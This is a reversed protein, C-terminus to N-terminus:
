NYTINHNPMNSKTLTVTTAGGKSGVSYNTGAGDLQGAGMPIRGRLDPLQFTAVGDGGYTTGLLSFLPTFQSISLMSGNCVKYGNPVKGNLYPFMTIEGLYPDSGAFSPYTGSVAIAYTIVAYPQMVPVATTGSTKGVPSPENGTNTNGTMSTSGNGGPTVSGTSTGPNIVYVWSSEKYLYLGSTGDTQYVLLGAEPSSIAKRQMATMRPPYFNKEKSTLESQSSANPVTKGTRIQAFSIQMVGLLASLAIMKKM